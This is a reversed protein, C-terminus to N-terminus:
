SGTNRCSLVGGHGHREHGKDQRATGQLLIAKTELGLSKPIVLGEFEDM